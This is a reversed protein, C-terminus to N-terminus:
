EDAVYASSSTLVPQGQQHDFPIEDKSLASQIVDTASGLHILEPKSYTM